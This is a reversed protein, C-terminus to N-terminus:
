RLNQIERVSTSKKMATLPYIVNNIEFLKVDIGKRFPDTKSEKLGLIVYDSQFIVDSLCLHISPDFKYSNVVSFEDCRLFAFNSDSIELFISFIGFHYDQPRIEIVGLLPSLVIHSLLPM